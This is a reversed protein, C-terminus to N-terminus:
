LEIIFLDTIENGQENYKPLNAFTYSWNDNTTTNGSVVQEKDSEGGKLIYKISAPRKSNVNSNDEWTKVVNVSIKDEPVKFKNKINFGANMTGTIEKEYFKLEDTNVEQEEVTYQIEDGTASYKPM